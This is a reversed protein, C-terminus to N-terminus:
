TYLSKLLGCSVATDSCGSYLSCCKEETVLIEEGNSNIDPGYCGFTFPMDEQVHYHYITKGGSNPTVGFHGGCADLDTPEVKGASEYKGYM